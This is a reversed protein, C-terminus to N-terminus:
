GGDSAAPPVDPATPTRHRSRGAIWSRPETGSSGTSVTSCWSHPVGSEWPEGLAEIGEATADGVRTLGLAASRSASPRPMAPRPCTVSCSKTAQRSATKQSPQQSGRRGIGGLGTVTLLRRDGAAWTRLTSLAGERGVLIDVEPIGLAGEAPESLLTGGGMPAFPDGALTHGGDVGAASASPAQAAQVLEDLAPETPLGRRLTRLRTRVAGATEPRASADRQLCASVLEAM